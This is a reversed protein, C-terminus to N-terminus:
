HIPGYGGLGSGRLEARERRAHIRDIAVKAAREDAASMIGGDNHGSSAEWFRVFLLERTFGPVPDLTFGRYDSTMTMCQVM